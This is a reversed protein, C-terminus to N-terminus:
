ASGAQRLVRRAYELLWEAHPLDMKVKDIGYKAEHFGWVHVDYAVAWAFEVRAEGLKKALSRAASGLLWTDWRGRREVAKLEPVKLAEALAKICEEVAKYLKESAQVADGSAVYERAEGLFKEALELRAEAADRPDLKSARSLASILLDVLDLGEERLRQILRRPIYVAAGSM